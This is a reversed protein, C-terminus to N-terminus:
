PLIGKKELAKSLGRSAGDIDGHLAQGRLTRYEQSTLCYDYRKLRTLFSHARRYAEATRRDAPARDNPIDSM